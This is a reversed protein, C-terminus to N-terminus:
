PMNSVNADILKLIKGWHFSEKFDLNRPESNKELLEKIEENTM